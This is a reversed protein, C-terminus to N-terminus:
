KVLMMKRTQVFGGAEMQCLYVGSPWNAADWLVTHSGALQRANVLTAVRQGLLNMIMLRVESAMPVDYRITTIPNFPNPYNQYLAFETPLLADEGSVASPPYFHFRLASEVTTDPFSSHAEVWWEVIVGDGLGLAGIDLARCTDSGTAYSLSTDNTALRLTYTLADHPDPDHAAQWCFHVEGFPLQLSDAPELLAFGAPPEPFYVQFMLVNEAWRGLTNLDSAHVWWYYAHDDALGGLAYTTDHLGSAVEWRTSLNALTDLWVEYSVTDAANTDYAAQWVLLANSTWCTDGWQPSILSFASPPRYGRDCWYAGM